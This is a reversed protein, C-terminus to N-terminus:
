RKGWSVASKMVVAALVELDLLILINQIFYKVM